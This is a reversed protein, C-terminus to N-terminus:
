RRFSPWISCARLCTANDNPAPLVIRAIRQDRTQRCRASVEVTHQDYTSRLFVTRRTWKVGGAIHGTKDIRDFTHAVDLKDNDIWYCQHRHLVRMAIRLGAAIKLGHDIKGAFSACRHEANMM